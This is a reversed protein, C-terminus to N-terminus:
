QFHDSPITWHSGNFPQCFATAPFSAASLLLTRNTLLALTFASVLALIRNGVGAISDQYFLYQCPAQGEASGAAVEARLAHAPPLGRKFDLRAACRRHMAQYRRLRHTFAASPSPSHAPPMYAHMETRSWCDHPSRSAALSARLSSLDSASERQRGEWGAQQQQQTSSQGARGAEGPGHRAVGAHRGVEATPLAGAPSPATGDAGEALAHAPLPVPHCLLARTRLHTLLAQSAPPLPTSHTVLCAPRRSLSLVHADHQAWALWGGAMLGHWPSCLRSVLALLAAAAVLLLRARRSGGDGAPARSSRRHM